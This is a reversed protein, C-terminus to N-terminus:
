TRVAPSETSVACMLSFSEFLRTEHHGVGNASGFRPRPTTSVRCGRKPDEDVARQPQTRGSVGAPSPGAIRPPGPPPERPNHDMSVRLTCPSQPLESLNRALMIIIHRRAARATQFSNPLRGGGQGWETHTASIPGFECSAGPDLMTM